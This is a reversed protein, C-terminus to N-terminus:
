VDNIKKYYIFIKACCLPQKKLIQFTIVCSIVIYTFTIIELIIILLMCKANLHNRKVNVLTVTMVVPVFAMQRIIIKSM